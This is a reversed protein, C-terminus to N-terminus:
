AERKEERRPALDRLVAQLLGASLENKAIVAEAEAMGAVGGPRGTVVVVPISRTRADAHLRGLVEEGSMGPMNLDLFIVDPRLAIADAVGSAGDRVEYVICPQAILLRRLTHRASEDDDIILARRQVTAPPASAARVGDRVPAVAAGRGLPLIARFESGEGPVSSMEVRGGIAEALRRALPLGLGTGRHRKQLANPLQVFEEFIRGHDAPDIGLGTDRVSFVVHEGAEDPVARVVVSGRETFKLANSVFNRLIQSLKAEDTVLEPVRSCDEFVLRVRPSVPMARMMARLASFLDEVGIAALRVETKGAEIKALDLLDSVMELVGEVNARIFAVQKDQEASLEGDTRDLLLRTLGLTSQLPTRLEHSVNSLFRSKQDAARKLDEARADLEAYLAVVGRNTDELERNLRILEEQREQLQALVRALERNQQQLEEVPSPRRQRALDEILRSVAERALACGGPLKKALVVTTGSDTGSLISVEDMLRQAGILGAGASGATRLAAADAQAAGDIGPGADIVRAVFMSPRRSDEIAFEIRGGGGHCCANRAIESVATAIRTQDHMDYGLLAAIERARQRATVIDQDDHLAVTLLPM